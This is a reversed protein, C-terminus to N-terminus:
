EKLVFVVSFSRWPPKLDQQDTVVSVECPFLSGSPWDCLQILITTHEILWLVTLNGKGWRGTKVRWHICWTCPRWCLMVWLWLMVRGCPGRFICGLSSTSSLFDVPGWSFAMSIFFEVANVVGPYHLCLLFQECIDVLRWAFKYFCRGHMVLSQSITTM